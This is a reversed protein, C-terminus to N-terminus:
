TFSSLVFKAAGGEGSAAREFARVGDTLPMRIIPLAGQQGQVRGFLILARRWASLSYARVTLINLQDIVAQQLDIQLPETPNGIVVVKGCKSLLPFSSTVALVNGSVEFVVDVKDNGFKQRLFEGADTDNVSVTHAAGINRAAQLRTRDRGVAFEVTAGALQVIQIISMGIQGVGWVGVRDGPKIGALELAYTAIAFPQLLAISELSIGDPVTYISNGPVSTFEAFGGDLDNGIMRRRLCHNPLGADCSACCGCGVVCQVVVRDGESIGAVGKGVAAIIGAFEHGMIRPLVGTMDKPNGAHYIKAWRYRAVESGSIGCAKVRVIVHGPVLAPEAVDKLVIGPEPKEKVLAKM